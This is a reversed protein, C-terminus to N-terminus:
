SCAATCQMVCSSECKGVIHKLQGVFHGNAVSGGRLDSGDIASIQDVYVFIVTIICIIFHLYHETSLSYKAM